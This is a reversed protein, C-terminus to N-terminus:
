TRGVLGDLAALGLDGAGRGWAFLRVQRRVRRDASDAAAAVPRLLDLHDSVSRLLNVTPLMLCWPCYIPVREYGQCLYYEECGEPRHNKCNPEDQPPTLPPPLSFLRCASLIPLARPRRLVLCRRAKRCGGGDAGGSRLGAGGVGGLPREGCDCMHYHPWMVGGEEERATQHCCKSRTETAGNCDCTEFARALLQTM